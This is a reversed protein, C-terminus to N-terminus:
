AVDPLEEDDLGGSAGLNPTGNTGVTVGEYSDASPSRKRRSRRPGEEEVKELLYLVICSFARCQGTM